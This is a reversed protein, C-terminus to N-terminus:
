SPQRLRERLTFLSFGYRGLLILGLVTVPVYQILHVVVAYSLSVDESLGVAAFITFREEPPM